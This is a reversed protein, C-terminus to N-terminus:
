ISLEREARELTSIFIQEANLGTKPSKAERLLAFVAEDLPRQNVKQCLWVAKAAYAINNAPEIRNFDDFFWGCSTFMKQHELQAELLKAIKALDLDHWSEGFLEYGLDDVTKLGLIVDIYRHRLEWALGERHSAEMSDLGSFAELYQEDVWDSIANLAHRMPAKWSSGTTCGCDDSWRGVGHLCSWSSPEVLTARASPTNEKLYLGPYTWNVGNNKGGLGLIYSLFLDRFRQHHGYLEGDSAFLTIGKRNGNKNQIGHLFHDGNETSKPMFSIMTSFERNYPFVVFPKRGEPLDILFPGDEIKSEIPQIQWPALITFILGEDALVCLTELDVATEGLWMGQPSHGFRAKFEEIGWRVQTVKDIYSQLPLISHNYAQAMANGVGHRQYTALEQEIILRATEPVNESMWEFLTPGINFSIKGFNGALANPTYCEACIRENWNQYPDAGREQPIQNSIPDERPPQYFHGHICYKM